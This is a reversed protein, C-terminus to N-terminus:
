CSLSQLFLVGQDGVKLATYFGAPGAGVVCVRVADAASCLRATGASSDLQFAGRPLLARFIGWSRHLNMAQLDTGINKRLRGNLGTETAM